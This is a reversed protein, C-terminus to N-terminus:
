KKNIIIRKYTLTSAGFMVIIAGLIVLSITGFSAGTKPLVQSSNTSKEAIIFKSFHPTNFTVKSGDVKTDMLEFKKTDENYYFVSLNNKDLGKLEEDSLNITIEASGNAFKHIATRKDGDVLTLDFSYLKKVAKLGKVIDTNDVVTTDLLLKSGETILTKDVVSFPLKVIENQWAKVQLSGNGEKIAKTDAITVELNNGSAVNTADVVNSSDKDLKNVAIPLVGNKVAGIVTKNTTTDTKTGEAVSTTPTTSTSGSANSTNGAGASPTSNNKGSNGTTSGGQGSGAPATTNGGTSPNQHQTNSEPKNNIVAYIRSAKNDGDVIKGTVVLNNDDYVQVYDMHSNVQYKKVWANNEYKFVFGDKIKWPNNYYDEVFINDFSASFLKEGKTLTNGSINMQYFFFDKNEQDAKNNKNNLSLYIKDNFVLVNVMDYKAEIDKDLYYKDFTGNKDVIELYEKSIDNKDVFIGYYKDKYIECNVMMPNQDFEVVKDDPTLIGSRYDGKSDATYEGWGGYDKSKEYHPIMVKYNDGYKKSVISEKAATNDLGIVKGQELDFIYSEGKKDGEETSYELQKYNLPIGIHGDLKTKVGNNFYYTQLVGDENIYAVMKDKYQCTREDIEGKKYDLYLHVNEEAKVVKNKITVSTLTLISSCLVVLSIIGKLRRM